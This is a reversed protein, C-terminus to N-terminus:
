AHNGNGGGIWRMVADVKRAVPKGEALATQGLYITGVIRDAPDLGLFTKVEASHVMKGTRWMAALGRAHAAVLLNQIAAATAAFDEEAVVPEPDTRTSVIILTPARLVKKVEGEITKDRQAPDVRAAVLEGWARGLRERESGSIITFTWPETLRHNPASTALEILEHITERPVEGEALAVSRRTRIALIADM